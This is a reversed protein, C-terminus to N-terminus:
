EKNVVLTWGKHHSRKGQIVKIILPRSLNHKRCFEALNIINTYIHGDPNLLSEDYKKARSQVIMEKTQSSMKRGVNAKRLSEKHKNTLKKGYMGNSSGTLKQSLLQKTFATREKDTNSMAIKQKHIDSMPLRITGALHKNEELVWGKHHMAQKCMVRHLHAISLSNDKAFKSLNYINSHLVGNPSVLTQIYTKARPTPNISHYEFLRKRSKEKLTKSSQKNYFKKLSESRKANSENNNRYNSRPSTPYKNINYCLKQEDHFELLLSEEKELLKEKSYTEVAELVEFTFASTGCKNFDNQLFKNHHTRKNLSNLHQYYRSKLHKASGIYFRGSIENVIKYIGSKNSCEKYNTKM